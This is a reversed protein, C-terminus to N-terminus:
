VSLNRGVIALIKTHWLKLADAKEKEYAHLDYVKHLGPRAHAVLLERVIDEVPLASFRTRCTRRIDHIVFDEFPLEQADLDKRMLGNLRAKAKSFGSVPRQGGTTSFLFDGGSFRPLSELLASIERTLPVAHASGGKMRNAPIVWLKATLDIEGWRANAAEDRRLATLLLLQFLKGFPYGMSGAAHWYAAMEPDKLVRQRVNRPGILVTPKLKACPSVHLNFDGSDIVWNFFARLVGLLFHANTPAGRDIIAQIAAKVTAPSIDALPLAMWSKCERRMEREIDPGSKLKSAKRELYAEFAAGFTSSQRQKEAEIATRRQRKEEIAPDIGKKVLANWERAKERAQALSMDGYAGLSRRAPQKSGPYRRRLVFTKVGTPMVRVGLGGVQSDMVEYPKPEPKLSKLLRDTLNVKAKPEAKGKKPMSATETFAEAM